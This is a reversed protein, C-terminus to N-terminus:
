PRHVAHQIVADSFLEIFFYSVHVNMVCSGDHTTLDGGWGLGLGGWEKRVAGGGERSNPPFNTLWGRARTYCYVHPKKGDLAREFM